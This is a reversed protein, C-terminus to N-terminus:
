ARALLRQGRETLTWIRGGALLICITRAGCRECQGSCGPGLAQIYHTRQLTQLMHEVLAQDVGLRDALDSVTHADGDALLQLLKRLPNDGTV